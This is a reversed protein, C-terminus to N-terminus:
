ALCLLCTPPTQFDQNKGPMRLQHSRIQNVDKISTEKILESIYRSNNENYKLENVTHQNSGEGEIWKERSENRAHTREDETHTETHLGVRAVSRFELSDGGFSRKSIEDECINYQMQDDHIENSLIFNKTM